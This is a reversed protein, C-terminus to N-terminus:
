AAYFDIETQPPVFGIVAYSGDEETYTDNVWNEYSDYVSVYVDVIGTEDTETVKGSIGGTTACSSSLSNRAADYVFHETTVNMYDANADGDFNSHNNIVNAAYTQSFFLLVFYLSAILVARMHNM